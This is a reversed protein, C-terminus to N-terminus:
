TNEKMLADAMLLPERLRECEPCRRGDPWSRWTTWAVDVPRFTQGCLSKFPPDGAPFILGRHAHVLIPRYKPDGDKRKPNRKLKFYTM